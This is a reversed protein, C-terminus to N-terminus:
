WIVLYVSSCTEWDRYGGNGWHLVSNLSDRGQCNSPM